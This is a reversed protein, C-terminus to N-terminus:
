IQNGSKTTNIPNNEKNRDLTLKGEEQQFCQEGRENSSTMEQLTTPKIGETHEEALLMKNLASQFYKIHPREQPEKSYGQYVLEKLDSPFNSPLNPKKDYIKDQYVQFLSGPFPNQGSFM